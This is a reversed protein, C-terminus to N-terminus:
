EVIFECCLFVTEAPAEQPYVEKIFRYSGLPLKSYLGTTFEATQGPDLLFLESTVAWYADGKMKYWVGNQLVELDFDKGCSYVDQTGNEIEYELRNQVPDIETIRLALLESFERDSEEAISWEGGGRNACATCLGLILLCSLLVIWKKM